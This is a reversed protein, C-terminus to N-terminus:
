GTTANTKRDAEIFATHRGFAKRVGALSGPQPMRKEISKFLHMAAAFHRGSVPPLVRNHCENDTPKLLHLVAALHKDTKLRSRYRAAKAPTRPLFSFREEITTRTPAPVHPKFSCSPTTPSRQLM